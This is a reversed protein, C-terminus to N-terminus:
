FSAGKGKNKIIMRHRKMEVTLTGRKKEMKMETRDLEAYANGKLDAFPDQDTSEKAAKAGNDNRAVKAFAPRASGEATM